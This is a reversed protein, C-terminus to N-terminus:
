ADVSARGTEPAEAKESRAMVSEIVARYQQALNVWRYRETRAANATGPAFLMSELAREIGAVDDPPIGSGAGSEALLDHLAADPPALALIPRGAAMYDYVKYPTSYTMHNSVVALLLHARQLEPLLSAFPIRPREEIFETLQAQAIKRTERPPLPGYNTLRIPRDPHRRSVNQIARLLPVLSRSGYIDGAHVIQMAGERAPEAHMPVPDFGNPIVFNRDLAASPFSREFWQRMSPTNLVRAASGRILRAEIRRGFWQTLGGRHWEPWDYASWPDRYDLVLPWGLKRAIRAGAILAAHPPSTAIVIGGADNAPLKRAVALAKRTAARAWFYDFGVPELLRRFIANAVRRWGRGKERFRFFADISDGVRHVTGHVPLSNDERGHTTERIENTVVHVEFGQRTFERTLFSFRKAGVLPSPAFHHSVILIRPRPNM